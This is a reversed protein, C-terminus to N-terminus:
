ERPVQLRSANIIPCLQVSQRYLAASVQVQKHLQRLQRKVDEYSDQLMKHEQM